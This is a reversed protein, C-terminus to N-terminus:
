GPEAAPPGNAPFLGTASIKDPIEELNDILLLRLVAILEGRHIPRVDRERQHDSGRHASSTSVAWGVRLRNLPKEQSHLVQNDERDIVAEVNRREISRCEITRRLWGEHDFVLDKIGDGIRRSARFAIFDLLRVLAERGDANLRRPVRRAEGNESIAM